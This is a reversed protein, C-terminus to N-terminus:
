SWLRGMQPVAAAQLQGGATQQQQQQQKACSWVQQRSRRSQAGCCCCSMKPQKLRRCCAHVGDDACPHLLSCLLCPHLEAWFLAPSVPCIMHCGRAQRLLHAKLLWQNAHSRSGPRHFMVFCPVHTIHCLQARLYLLGVKHAASRPRGAEPVANLWAADEAAAGSGAEQLGVAASVAQQMAARQRARRRRSSIGSGSSDARSSSSSAIITHLTALAADLQGRMVLWRPSEPLSVLSALLFAGSRNWCMLATCPMVTCNLVGPIDASLNNSSTLVCDAAYHLATMLLVTCTNFASGLGSCRCSHDCSFDQAVEIVTLRLAGFTM